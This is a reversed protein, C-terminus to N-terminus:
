DPMAPGGDPDAPVSADQGEKEWDVGIEQWITM